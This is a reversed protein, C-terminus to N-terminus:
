CGSLMIKNKRIMYNIIKLCFYIIFFNNIKRNTNLRIDQTSDYLSPGNWYL